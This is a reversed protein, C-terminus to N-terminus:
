GLRGLREREAVIRRDLERLVGDALVAPDPVRWAQAPPQAPIPPPPPTPEAPPTHPRAPVMRPPQQVVPDPAPASPVRDRAAPPRWGVPLTLESREIRTLQRFLHSINRVLRGGAPRGAPVPLVRPAAGPGAGPVRVPLDLRPAFVLNLRSGAITVSSSVVHTTTAAIPAPARVLVLRLPAPRAARRDHRLRSGWRRRVPQPRPGIM